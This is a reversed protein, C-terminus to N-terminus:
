PVLHEELLAAVRAMIKATAGGGQAVFQAAVKGAATRKEPDSVWQHLAAKLSAADTFARSGGAALLGEAEIYFHYTPGHLVPAGMAAPELVNHVGTRSFGGGVYAIAASRYIGLLLGVRNVILIRKANAHPQGWRTTEGAFRKEIRVIHGEEVEHPVLIIKWNDPMVNLAAQLAEEDEPWTSGAVLLPAGGAFAEIEPLPTANQAAALVRDFRPDGDVSIKAPLHLSGLLSASLEDQVSVAALLQLMRRQAGGWWKFYGQRRSFRAAFLLAPIDKEKLAELYHLWLDYKVFLAIQPRVAEVFARANGATDFPLYFIHDAGEYAKRVEYGSPSFFTLVLAHGPYRKRLAELVPRGQEFEGLSACHMWLCPRQEGALQQQIKQLGNQRGAIAKKAKPVFPQAAWVAARYLAIGLNYGIGAM